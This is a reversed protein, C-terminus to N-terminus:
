VYRAGVIRDFNFVGILDDDENKIMVTRPPYNTVELTANEFFQDGSDPLIVVVNM